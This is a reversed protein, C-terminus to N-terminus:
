DAYRIEGDLPRRPPRIGIWLKVSEVRRVQEGGLEVDYAKVRVREQEVFGAKLALGVGNPVASIGVLVNDIDALNSCWDVLRSGHGQRHYAPHVVLTSLRM